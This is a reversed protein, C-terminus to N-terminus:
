FRASIAPFSYTRVPFGADPHGPGPLSALTTWNAGDQSAQIGGDPISPGGYARPTGAAITFAQARFPQSFELQIFTPNGEDAFPFDVINSWDGDTLSALSLGEASSTTRPHLSAMSFETQPTRFAIVATDAYFTPDPPPLPLKP